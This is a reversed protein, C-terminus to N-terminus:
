VPYIQLFLGFGNLKLGKVTISKVLQKLDSKLNVTCSLSITDAGWQGAPQDFFLGSSFEDSVHSFRM